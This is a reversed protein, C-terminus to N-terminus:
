SSLTTSSPQLIRICEGGKSQWIRVTGDASGTVINVNMTSNSGGGSSSGYYLSCSCLHVTNEQQITEQFLSLIAGPLASSSLMVVVTAPVEGGTVVKLGVSFGVDTVGLGVFGADGSGVEGGLGLGM